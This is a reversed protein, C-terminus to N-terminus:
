GPLARFVRAGWGADEVGEVWQMLEEDDPGIKTPRKKRPKQPSQRKGSPEEGVRPSATMM